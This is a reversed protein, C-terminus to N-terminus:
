GTVDVLLMGSTKYAYLGISTMVVLKRGFRLKGDKGIKVKKKKM